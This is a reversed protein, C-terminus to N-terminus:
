DPGVGYQRFHHAFHVGHIRGYYRLPQPGLLMNPAPRDPHSDVADFFRGIARLLAEREEDLSGEAEPTFSAPAKIKGGPWKTFWHFFLYRLLTRVVPVGMSRTKPGEGLSIEISTRLHRMLGEPTLTGWHRQDLSHISSLADAFYALNERTLERVAM